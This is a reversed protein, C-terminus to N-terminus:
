APIQLVTDTDPVEYYQSKWPLTVAPGNLTVANVAHLQFARNTNANKLTTRRPHPSSAAEGRPSSISQLMVDLVLSHHCSLFDASFLYSISGISFCIWGFFHVNFVWGVDV